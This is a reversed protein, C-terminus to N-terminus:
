RIEGIDFCQESCVRNSDIPFPCWFFHAPPLISAQLVVDPDAKAHVRSCSVSLWAAFFAVTVALALGCAKFMMTQM